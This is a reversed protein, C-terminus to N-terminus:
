AIFFSRPIGQRLVPMTLQAQTSSSLSLKRICEHRRQGLASAKYKSFETPTWGALHSEQILLRVQTQM